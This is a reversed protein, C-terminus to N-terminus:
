FLLLAHQGQTVRPIPPMAQTEHREIYADKDGSVGAPDPYM